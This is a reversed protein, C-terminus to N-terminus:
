TGPRPWRPWPTGGPSGRNAMDTELVIEWFRKGERRAAATIDRMSDLNM